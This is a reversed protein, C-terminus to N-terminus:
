GMGFQEEVIGCKGVGLLAVGAEGRWAQLAQAIGDFDGYVAKRRRASWALRRARFDV